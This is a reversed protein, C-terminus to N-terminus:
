GIQDRFFLHLCFKQLNRAPLHSSHMLDSASSGCAFLPNKHFHFHVDACFLGGVCDFQLTLRIKREENGSARMTIDGGSGDDDVCNRGDEGSRGPQTGPAIEWEAKEWGQRRLLIEESLNKGFAHWLPM